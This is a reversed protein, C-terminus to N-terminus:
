NRSHADARMAQLAESRAEATLTKDRQIKRSQEEVVAKMDYVKGAAAPEFDFSDFVLDVPRGYTRVLIDQVLRGAFPPVQDQLKALEDAIDPPLLDRRTSLVQGFKVFIPGLRELARRLRVGRPKTLDRWFLLIQLTRRLGPTRELVLQDLGYRVAVASIICLRLLQRM